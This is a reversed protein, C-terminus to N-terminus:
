VSGIDRVLRFAEAYELGSESGRKRALVDVGEVSRPHPWKKVEGKYVSFAKIKNKIYPTIDRYVDPNFVGVPARGWETSSLVEFSYIKKVTEERLPRCATMVAQFTIRHDINLDGEYHTYIISPAIQKKINEVVKVVTLLPVADFSNDPFDAFCIKKVGLFKAAKACQEKLVGLEKETNRSKGAGRSTIGEGLILISVDDGKKVHNNITGGCGLVEDDPHAAVVLVKHKSM